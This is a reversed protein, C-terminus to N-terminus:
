WDLHLRVGATVSHQLIVMWSYKHFLAFLILAIQHQLKWSVSPFTSQHTTPVITIIRSATPFGNNTSISTMSQLSNGVLLSALNRLMVAQSHKGSQTSLFPFYRGPDTFVDVFRGVIDGVQVVMRSLGIPDGQSNSGWSFLQIVGNQIGKPKISELSQCFLNCLQCTKASLRLARINPALQFGESAQGSSVIPIYLRECNACLPM